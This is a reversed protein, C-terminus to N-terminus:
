EDYARGCCPCIGSQVRVDMVQPSWREFEQKLQLVISPSHLHWDNLDKGTTFETRESMFAKTNAAIRALSILAADGGRRGADDADYCVMVDKGRFLWEYDRSWSTAGGTWTVTPLGIQRGILCDWEGEVLLLKDEKIALWEPYLRVEGHGRSNIMKCKSDRSKQFAAMRINVCTSFQDLIPITIRHTSPDYGLRFAKVTDSRVGRDDLYDQPAANKFLATQYAVYKSAPIADVVQDYLEKRAELYSKGEMKAYLDVINSAKWGCGHCLAKGEPNIHLSANKDEHHPCVVQGDHTYAPFWNKITNVVDLKSAIFNAMTDSCKM